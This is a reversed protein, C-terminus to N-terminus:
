IFLNFVQIYHDEKQAIKVKGLFMRGLFVNGTEWLNLPITSLRGESTQNGKSKKM